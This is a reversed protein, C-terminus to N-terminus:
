QVDDDGGWRWKPSEGKSICVALLVATSIIVSVVLAAPRTPALLLAADTVFVVYGLLVVWGQWRAPMGWGYGYRKAPFWAEDKPLSM